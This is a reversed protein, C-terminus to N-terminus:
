DLSREMYFADKGKGYYDRIMGKIAYGQSFYLRLAVVNSVGVELGIATVGKKVCAEELRTLLLKATGKGREMPLVAISILRARDRRELYASSYGVVEKEAEAVLTLFDKSSTITKLLSRPFREKQFSSREIDELMTLDKGTARRIEV